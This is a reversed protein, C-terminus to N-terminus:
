CGLSLSPAVTNWSALSSVDAAEELIFWIFTLFFDASALHNSGVQHITQSEEKGPFSLVSEWLNAESSWVQAATPLCAKGVLWYMILHLKSQVLHSGGAEVAWTYVNHAQVWVCRQSSLQLVM